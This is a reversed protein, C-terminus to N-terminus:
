LSYGIGWELNSGKFFFRSLRTFNFFVNKTFYYRIGMRNFFRDDVLINKEILYIGTQFTIYLPHFNFIHNLYIGFQINPNLKNITDMKQEFASVMSGDYFLSTGIGLQNVNYISYLSEISFSSVFYKPSNYLVRERHGITPLFVFSM